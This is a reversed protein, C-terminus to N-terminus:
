ASRVFDGLCEVNFTQRAKVAEDFSNFTGLHIRKWNMRVTAVWKGPRTEYVGTMGSKNKKSIKRNHGNQVRDAQRLNEWQDDAPIGNKHDVLRAPWKKTMYFWALRAAYFSRGLIEIRRYGAYERIDVTGAIKGVWGNRTTQRWRFEGTAPDYSLISVLAEWILFSEFDTPEGPQHKM